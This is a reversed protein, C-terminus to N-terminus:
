DELDAAHARKELVDHGCATDIRGEAHGHMVRMRPSGDVGPFVGFVDNEGVQRVLEQAALEEFCEFNGVIVTGNEALMPGAKLVGKAGAAEVRAVVEREIRGDIAGERGVRGFAGGEQREDFDLVGAVDVGVDADLLGGAFDDGDLVRARDDIHERADVRLDRAEADGGGGAVIYLRGEFGHM